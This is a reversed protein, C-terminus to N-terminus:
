LGRVPVIVTLMSFSSHSTRLLVPYVQEMRIIFCIVLAPKGAWLVVLLVLLLTLRKM